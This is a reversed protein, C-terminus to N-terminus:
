ADATAVLAAFEVFVASEVMYFGGSVTANAVVRRAVDVLIPRELSAAAQRIADGADDLARMARPLRERLDEGGLGDTTMGDALILAERVTSLNRAADVVGGGDLVDQKPASPSAQRSRDLARGDLMADRLEARTWGNAEAKDLWEIQQAPQLPAVESHHGFRLGERRRSPAVKRMVSAYNTLTSYSLGTADLAQAYREGYRADGFNLLDGIIFSMATKIEGAARLISEFTEFPLSPDTVTLGRTTWEVGPPADPLALGLGVM